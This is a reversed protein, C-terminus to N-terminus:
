TKNKTLMNIQKIKSIEIKPKRNVDLLGNKEQMVDTLQTVCYGCVSDLNVIAQTIDRLREFYEDENAVLTGYGWGSEKDKDFAIGAYESIMIPECDYRYGDAFATRTYRDAVYDGSMFKDMDEYALSINKPNQTYNHLTVIDSKTHEWGDNSIVFRTNDLTKTMSYLGNVFHQMRENEVVQLVGWGENIPVYAMLSIYGKHQCVIEGWERMVNNASDLNFDYVAPMELWFYLGVMDCFYYFREDEIKQHKRVGNFGMEKMLLVDQLIEDDNKPTMDSDPFYGQDLVMKFYTNPLYNIQVSNGVSRYDILATYSGVKDIQQNNKYLYFEVDYFQDCRGATWPKINLVRSKVTVDVTMEGYDAYLDSSVCAVNDGQYTIFAKLSLGQQFNAISYDFTISHNKYTCSSNINKIYSNGVEELWVTKWIGTTDTYFCSINDKVYRQKGRPTLLSYSDQCKVVIDNKGDFVYDSIDFSFRAYGGKHSGVLCSNIWVKCEYDAGEFNIILRKNKVKKYNFSRKYWINDHRTTDCIGSSKTQYAFPVIIKKSFSHSRYFKEQEGINDDDFDFDWEGNLSIFSERVFRPRPYEKKYCKAHNM